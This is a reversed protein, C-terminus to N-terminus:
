QQQYCDFVLHVRDQRSANVVTHRKQVDLSYLMGVTPMREVQDDIVFFIDGNTVLPIHYRISSEADIHYTLNSKGTLKLLRVRGVSLGSNNIFLTVDVVLKRLEPYDYLFDCWRDYEHQFKDQQWTETDYLTSAGWALGDQDSMIAPKKLNIHSLRTRNYLSRYEEVIKGIDADLQYALEVIAAM